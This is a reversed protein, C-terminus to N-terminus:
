APVSVRVARRGMTKRLREPNPLKLERGSWVLDGQKRLVQLMRNVHVSTLGLVDGLAEQTLPMAYSDHAALGALTLRDLLELALDAIREQANMRGIRTIQALLHAEDLARSRAYAERLMPSVAPDPATCVEVETLAVVSSVALPRDHECSGILDGPLLLHLIQRRGDKLFCVRAAWGRLLLQADRIERGEALLEHHARHRRPPQTALRLADLAVDDLPILAALRAVAPALPQDAARPTM